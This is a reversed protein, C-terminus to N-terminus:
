DKNLGNKIKIKIPVLLIYKMGFIYICTFWDRCSFGFWVLGLTPLFWCFPLKCVQSLRTTYEIPPILPKPIWIISTPMASASSAPSATSPAPDGPCDRCIARRLCSLSLKLLSALAVWIWEIRRGDRTAYITGHKWWIVALYPSCWKSWYTFAPYWSEQNTNVVPSFQKTHNPGEGLNAIESGSSNFSIMLLGSTNWLVCGPGITSFTAPPSISSSSSFHALCLLIILGTKLIHLLELDNRYM